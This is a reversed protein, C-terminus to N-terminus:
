SSGWRFHVKTEYLDISPIWNLDVVSFEFNDTFTDWVSAIKLIFYYYYIFQVQSGDWYIPV